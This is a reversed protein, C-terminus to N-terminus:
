KRTTRKSTTRPKSATEAKAKPRPRAKRAPKAASAPEAPPAGAKANAALPSSATESPTTQPRAKRAPKAPLAPEAPPADAKAMSTASAAEAPASAAVAAPKEEDKKVHVPQPKPPLEPLTYDPPLRRRMEKVQIKVVNRCRPCPEQYYDAQAAEAEAVGMGIAERNLTFVWGCRQCRVQMM